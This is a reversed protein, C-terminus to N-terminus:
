QKECLVGWIPLANKATNIKVTEEDIVQFHSPGGYQSDFIAALSFKPKKFNLIKWDGDNKYTGKTDITTTKTDDDDESAFIKMKFKFTNDKFLQLAIDGMDNGLSKYSVDTGVSTDVNEKVDVVAVNKEAEVSSKKSGCSSVAIVLVILVVNKWM